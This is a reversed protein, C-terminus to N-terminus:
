TRRWPHNPFLAMVQEASVEVFKPELEVGQNEEYWSVEQGDVTLARIPNHLCSVDSSIELAQKVVPVLFKQVAAKLVEHGTLIDYDGYEIIFDDFMDGDGFGWKCLLDASYLKFTKM